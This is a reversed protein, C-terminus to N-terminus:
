SSCEDQKMQKFEEYTPGYTSTASCTVSTRSIRPPYHEKEPPLPICHNTLFKSSYYTAYDMPPKKVYNMQQILVKTPYKPNCPASTGSYEVSTDKKSTKAKLENIYTEADSASTQQVINTCCLLRESLMGENNKVSPRAGTYPDYDNFYQSKVPRIPFRGLTSGHGIYGTGRMRTQISVPHYDTRRPNNLSFGGNSKGSLNKMAQNKRKLAVISM